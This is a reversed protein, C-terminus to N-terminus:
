AEQPTKLPSDPNSELDQLFLLAEDRSSLPIEHNIELQTM